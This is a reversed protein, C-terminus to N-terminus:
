LILYLLDKLTQQALDANPLPLTNTFNNIAKGQRNYLDSKIQLALLDMSWGNELTQNIYFSAEEVTNLKSIILVIHRWPLKAAFRQLYDTEFDLKGVSRQFFDSLSFFKYFNVCNYLNSTSFGTMEPFAIKLDRSLNEILGKGWQANQQKEYIDRGLDWYFLILEANASLMIKYQTHKVREKISNLWEIYSQEINM